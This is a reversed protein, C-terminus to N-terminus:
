MSHHIVDGGSSARESAYIETLNTKGRMDM